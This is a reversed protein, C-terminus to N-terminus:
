VGSTDWVCVEHRLFSLSIPGSFPSPRSAPRPEKQGWEAGDKVHLNKEKNRMKAWNCGHTLVDGFIDLKRDFCLM